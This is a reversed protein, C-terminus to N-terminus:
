TECSPEKPRQADVDVGVCGPHVDGQPRGHLDHGGLAVAPGEAVTLATM